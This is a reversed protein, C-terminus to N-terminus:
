VEVQGDRQNRGSISPTDEHILWYLAPPESVFVHRQRYTNNTVRIAMSIIDAALKSAVLVALRGPLDPRLRAIERSRRLAYTSVISGRLRIDLLLRWPREDPWTTIEVTLDKSWDDITVPSLDYFRYCLIRRDSLWEKVYRPNSETM